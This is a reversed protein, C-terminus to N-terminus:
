TNLGLEEKDIFHHSALVNSYWGLRVKCYNMKLINKIVKM